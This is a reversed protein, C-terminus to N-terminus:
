GVWTNRQIYQTDKQSIADLRSQKRKADQKFGVGYRYKALSRESETDFDDETSDITICM